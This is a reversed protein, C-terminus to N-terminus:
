KEETASFRIILFRKPFFEEEQPAVVESVNQGAWHTEEMPYPKRHLGELRDNEDKNHREKCWGGM